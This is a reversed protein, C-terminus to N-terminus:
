GGIRSMPKLTRSLLKGSSRKDGHMVIGGNITHGEPKVEISLRLLREIEKDSSSGRLAPKLDIETESFLCPRLKGDATIRLRNCYGCFHHTLASIFGIVGRANEFRYYRAPGDKRRRVPSLAGMKEVRAKIEDSSLYRKDSWLDGAGIPMFEIFRVQYPTELTLRAFEEIEGDNLDRIPVMNIKLPILGAKEAAEIGKMVLGIDGGRTMERYRDPNLSDLSINVRNLGADALEQAYKELLVGNTTLSMDEIGAISRLSAILYTVNKRALPEGGTIRIKRVGLAAAVRVVKVIEEYSLIEKHEIPMVGGSPMCYICRLNCRDTISIRLYDIVRSYNDQLKM